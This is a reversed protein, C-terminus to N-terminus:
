EDTASQSWYRQLEAPLKDSRGSGGESRDPWEVTTTHDFAGNQKSIEIIVKAQGFQYKGFLQELPMHERALERQEMDLTSDLEIWLEELFSEAEERFPSITVKLSNGSRLQETYRGELAMYQPYTSQLIRNVEAVKSPELNLKLICVDNLTPGEPGFTLDNSTPGHPLYLQGIKKIGQVAAEHQQRAVNSKVRWIAPLMLPLMMIGTLILAVVAVALGIFVGQRNAKIQKTGSQDAPGASAPVKKRSLAFVVFIVLPPGFVIAFWPFAGLLITVTIAILFLVGATIAIISLVINKPGPKIGAAEEKKRIESAQAFLKFTEDNLLVWFVYIGIATGIPINILALVSLIMTLIRAWGRRKLLGIGAIVEPVSTIFFFLAICTGVIGTINMAEPDRSILGGGTIAVFAAIGVLIGITGFIISLVAVITIHKEMRNVAPVPILAQGAPAIAAVPPRSDAKITEVDTKVESAQQYRLEPEKELTRLVIEDLKVDVHVKKSPPAFRGIPLEGTLMEYFVVGLSYIDARHDVQGPHEIQEPAMYHPTGMKHGAATLTFETAPKDLLKALGFDAIKVRGKKDILINEPKIDRHVIGEEHAFQLADCIQPVIALAESPELEGAQIVHRLDTGDVYEMVFYYLGDETHGFDFVTVIRPHNLRALSRAERTFREAFAETEGVEPPLIKLAVVRDLQKQRAKYVAGMGGQGLLEIIELQPFQKALEAPDPPIFRSPPTQNTPAGSKDDSAATKEIDAGTPLGLKILCQPCLGQPADAPLKGGCENCQREEAM